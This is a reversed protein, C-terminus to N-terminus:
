DSNLFDTWYNKNSNGAPYINQLAYKTCYLGNSANISKKACRNLNDAPKVEGNNEFYFAFVDIGFKNPGKESGNIDVALTDYAYQAFWDRGKGDKIYGNGFISSSPSGDTLNKYTNCFFSSNNINQEKTSSIKIYQGDIIDNFVNIYNYGGNATRAYDPISMEHTLYFVRSVHEIDSYAKVLKTKLARRQYKQVLNPIAIVAIVGLISLTILVEALTFSKRMKM